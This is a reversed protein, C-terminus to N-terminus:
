PGSTKRTAWVVCNFCQLSISQDNIWDLGFKIIFYNDSRLQFLPFNFVFHSLILNHSLVCINQVTEAAIRHCQTSVKYYYSYYDITINYQM